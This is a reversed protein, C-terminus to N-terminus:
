MNYRTKPAEFPLVTTQSTGTHDTSSVSLLVINDRQRFWAANYAPSLSGDPMLMAPDYADGILAFDTYGGEKLVYNIYARNYDTLMPYPHWIALYRICDRRLKALNDEYDYDPDPENVLRVMQYLDLKQYKEPMSDFRRKNIYRLHCALCFCQEEADELLEVTDGEDEMVDLLKEMREYAVLVTEPKVCEDEIENLLRIM